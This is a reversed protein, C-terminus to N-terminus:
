NARQCCRAVARNSTEAISKVRSLDEEANHDGNMRRETWDGDQYDEAGCPSLQGPGKRPIEGGNGRWTIKGGNQHKGWWSRVLKNKLWHFFAVGGSGNLFKVGRCVGRGFFIFFDAGIGGGYVIRM